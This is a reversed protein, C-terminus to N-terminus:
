TPRLSDMGQLDAFSLELPNDIMGTAWLRYGETCVSPVQLATDIRYFDVSCTVFPTVGEVNM